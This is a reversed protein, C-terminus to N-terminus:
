VTIQVYERKGRRASPDISRKAQVAPSAAGTVVEAAWFPPTRAGLAPLLPEFAGAREFVLDLVPTLVERVDAL